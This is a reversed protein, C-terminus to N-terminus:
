GKRRPLEQFVGHVVAVLIVSTILAGMYILIVNGNPDIGPIIIPEGIIWLVHKELYIEEQEGLIRFTINMHFNTDHELPKIVFINDLSAPYQRTLHAMGHNLEYYYNRKEEFESIVGEDIIFEFNTISDTDNFIDSHSANLTSELYENQYFVEMNEYLIMRPWSENSQTIQVDWNPESEQAIVNSAPVISCSTTFSILIVIFIVYDIKGM